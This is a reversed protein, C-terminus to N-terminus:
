RLESASRGEDPFDVTLFDLAEQRTAFRAFERQSFTQIANFWVEPLSETGVWASRQVFPRDVTAVEKIRMVAERDFEVGTFDAMVLVSGREQATIVQQAERVVEEVEAASSYSCDLFLVQRRRHTLWRIKSM